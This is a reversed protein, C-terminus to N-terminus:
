HGVFIDLGIELNEPVCFFGAMANVVRFLLFKHLNRVVLGPKCRCRKRASIVLFVRLVSSRLERSHSQSELAGRSVEDIAPTKPARFSKVLSLPLYLFGAPTASVDLILVSFLLHGVMDM